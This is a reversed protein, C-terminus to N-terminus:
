STGNVMVSSTSRGLLFAIADMLEQGHLKSSSRARWAVFNDPRVLMAGGIGVGKVRDWQDDYDRLYPLPGIQSTAIPIRYLSAAKKAAAVWASGKGDTLVLLGARGGVLDHTSLIRDKEELWAHPLRHGPRTTPNYEQGLPDPCCAEVETIGDPICFGQEYHFGLEVAHASFEICQSEIMKRTQALLGRGYVSNQFLNEFRVKNEEKKGTVLGLSANIVASNEFTFVGWDCNNRGVPRREQQYTDLIVSNVEFKLVLALKWSLNLADEIGTNLGLGTTPPCRHAADGAIFVNGQRYKDAVVGEIMWHSVQHVQIDLDPVRILDRIRPILREEQFRAEDNLDFGFHFIWEESDKGWTPGMPVLAGSELMTGCSGNIFHCGFLRDDWYSSLDASFHVTVMDTIGTRGEMRVGMKRGVFRGGDAGILYRSRYDSVVGDADKVKVLVSNGEDIFDVVTYGFRISGPNKTSAVERLIPELRCLPLNSSRECSDNAYAPAMPTREDGGFCPFKHIIKRDLHENGGLSTAWAVYSMNRKPCGQRQIERHMDHGRFIEMTRQNLYHAKPLPSSKESREFLIHDVGYNSLFASLSLGCGGGGVIIVPAEEADPM